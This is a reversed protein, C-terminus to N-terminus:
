WGDGPHTVARIRTGFIEAHGVGKLKLLYDFPNLKGVLLDRKRRCKRWHGIDDQDFPSIHLVFNM